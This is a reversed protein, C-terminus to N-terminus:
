LVGKERLEKMLKKVEYQVYKPVREPYNWAVEGNDYMIPYDIYDNQNKYESYVMVRIGVHGRTYLCIKHIGNLVKVVPKEEEGVLKWGGDAEACAHYVYFTEGTWKFMKKGIIPTHHPVYIVAM